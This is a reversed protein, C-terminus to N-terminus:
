WEEEIAEPAAPPEHLEGARRLRSLTFLPGTVEFLVTSAVVIQLIPGAEPLRESALLALGLAIGAQPLLCWGLNQAVVPEAAAARAGLWGGAIKGAARAAVYVAGTIGIAALSGLEFKFGSFVFFVMLFPEEVGEIAHFPRTYHRARNALVAGLSMCALLYSVQLLEALGACLFVFGIAEVLTPEGPKEKGTLWAMPIALLAGLLGAGAVEWLGHLLTGLASGTGNLIEAAVLLVSFLIVGWADDIAVVGLLVRTLPGRANRERTIDLIAAPATAPAIGALLLSLAPPVGAAWLAAFVVISTVACEVLSATVVTRSTRKLHKGAFSEGLLFGVIALATHAVMPFWATVEVPALDLVSPGAVAGILLLLSVRPVHIRRGIINAGYGALMLLGLLVLEL